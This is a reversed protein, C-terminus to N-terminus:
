DTVALDLGSHLNPMTLRGEFVASCGPMDWKGADERLLVRFM